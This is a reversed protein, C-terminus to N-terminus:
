LDTLRMGLEQGSLLNPKTSVGVVNFHRSLRSAVLVGTDGMGLILVTPKEKKPGLM